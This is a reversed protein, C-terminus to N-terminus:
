GLQRTGQTRTLRGMARQPWSAFGCLGPLGVRLLAWDQSGPPCVPPSSPAPPPCNQPRLPRLTPAPVLPMQVPSSTVLVPSSAEELSFVAPLPTLSWQCSTWGPQGPRSSCHDLCPCLHQTSHGPPAPFGALVRSDLSQARFASQAGGPSPHHQAM